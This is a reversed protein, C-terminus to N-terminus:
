QLYWVQSKLVWLFNQKVEVHHARGAVIWNNGIDVAIVNDISALMPLMIKLRLSRQINKEVLLDQVGMVAANLEAKTTLLSVMKQTSNKFTVLAWNLYVVSGTMIRRTGSCKTCNSDTKVMSEFEYDTNIGDWDGHLKLVLRRQPTTVCYDMICIMANYHPRGALTMHRACDCTMNYIDLRSWRIMHMMKRIGLQYKSQYKNALIEGPEPRKPIINLEALTVQKNKGAAFKDLFSQIMVPKTFRASRESKNIEIKCGVFEKLKGVDEIKIEKPIKKDKDKIIHLM